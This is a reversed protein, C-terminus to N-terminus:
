MWNKRLYHPLAKGNEDYGDDGTTWEEIVTGTEKDVVRLHAGVVEEGTTIDYKNIKVKTTDDYMHLAIDELSVWTKTYTIKSDAPRTNVQKDPFFGSVDLKTGAFEFYVTDFELDKFDSEKLVKDMTQQTIGDKVFLVLNKNVLLWKAATEGKLITSYDWDSEAKGEAIWDDAHHM